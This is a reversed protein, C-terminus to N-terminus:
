FKFFRLGLNFTHATRGPTTDLFNTYLLEVELYDTLYYKIGAGLQGYVTYNTYSGADSPFVFDLRQGFSGLGYLTVDTNPFYSYIATIPLQIPMFHDKSESSLRINEIHLGFDIFLRKKVSYEKEYFLQNFIQFYNYDSYGYDANGQAADMPVFYITHLININNKSKIPQYKIRPGIASIGLRAFSEVGRDEYFPRNQFKLASFTGVNGETVSRLKVDLGYNLNRNSGLLLQFFSSFFNSRLDGEIQTYYNNFIKLEGGGKSYLKTPYFDQNNTTGRDNLLWDYELYAVSSNANINIERLKNLEKIILEDQGFEEKNWFFIQSLYTENNKIDLIHPDRLAIRIYDDLDQDNSIYQLRPCGKAGCNLLFHLYPNKSTAIISRELEDLSLEGNGIKIKKTFFSNIEAVSSIPYVALIESLVLYNYVNIKTSLSTLPNTFDTEKLGALLGDLESIEGQSVAGYDFGSPTNYSSILNKFTNNFAVEQGVCDYSSLSFILSFVFLFKWM